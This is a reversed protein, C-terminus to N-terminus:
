DFFTVKLKCARLLEKRTNPNHKTKDDAARMIQKYTRPTLGLTEAAVHVYGLPYNKNYIKKCLYTIPCYSEKNDSVM